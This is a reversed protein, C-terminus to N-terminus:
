LVKKFITLLEAPVMPVNGKAGKRLTDVIEFLTYPALPFSGM